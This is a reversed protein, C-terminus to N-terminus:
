QHSDFEKVYISIVDFSGNSGHPKVVFDVLRDGFIHQACQRYVDGLYEEDDLCQSKAKIWTVIKVVGDDNALEALIHTLQFILSTLVSQRKLAHDCDLFPIFLFHCPKIVGEDFIKYKVIQLLYGSIDNNEETKQPSGVVHIGYQSYAKTLGILPRKCSLEGWKLGAVDHCFKIETYDYFNALLIAEKESIIFTDVKKQCEEESLGICMGYNQKNQKILLTKLRSLYLLTDIIPNERNSSNQIMSLSFMNEECLTSIMILNESNLFNILRPFGAQCYIKIFWNSYKETIEGSVVKDFFEDLSFFIVKQIENEQNYSIVKDKGIDSFDDNHNSSYTSLIGYFTLCILLFFRSVM